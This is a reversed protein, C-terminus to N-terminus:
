RLVPNEITGKYVAMKRRVVDTEGTVLPLGAVTFVEAGKAQEKGRRGRDEKDRGETGRPYIFRRQALFKTKPM